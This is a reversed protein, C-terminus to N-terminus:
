LNELESLSEIEYNDASNKELHLYIDGDIARISAKLRDYVSKGHLPHDAEYIEINDNRDIVRAAHIRLRLSMASGQDVFRIRIGKDDELAQDMLAFCDDYALRSTSTVM